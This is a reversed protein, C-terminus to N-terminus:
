HCRVRHVRYQHGHGSHWTRNGYAPGRTSSVRGGEPLMAIPPGPRKALSPWGKPWALLSLSPWLHLTSVAGRCRYLGICYEDANLRKTRQATAEGAALRAENSAQMVRERGEFISFVQVQLSPHSRGGRVASEHRDALVNITSNIHDKFCQQPKNNGHRSHLRPWRRADPPLHEQVHVEMESHRRWQM